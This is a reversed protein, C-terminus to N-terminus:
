CRPSRRPSSPRTRRSTSRCTCASSWAGSAPRPGEQDRARPRAGAQGFHVAATVLPETFLYVLGGLVLVGLLFVLLVAGGHVAGEPAPLTHGPDVPAHHLLRHRRLRRDHAPGVARPHARRQPRAAPHDDRGVGRHDGAPDRSSRREGLIQLRWTEPAEPPMAVLKAAASAWSATGPHGVHLCSDSPRPPVPPPPAAPSGGWSDWSCGAGPASGGPSVAGGGPHPPPEQRAVHLDRQHHQEEEEDALVDQEGLEGAGAPLCM